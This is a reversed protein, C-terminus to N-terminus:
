FIEKMAGILNLAVIRSNVDRFSGGKEGKGGGKTFSPPIQLSNEAYNLLGCEM